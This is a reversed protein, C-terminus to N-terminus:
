HLPGRAFVDRVGNSDGVVLNTAPSGFVAWRGDSSLASFRAPGNGQSGSSSVDVRVTTGLRRDRLFLDRQGNSDGAVLNTATSSFLCYRGHGSIAIGFSSGNAQHESSSVSIRHIVGTAGDLVFVDRSRNTDHNVGHSSGSTFLVYRGQPSIASALDRVNRSVVRTTRSAVDRVFVGGQRRPTATPSASPGAERFLVFRGGASM